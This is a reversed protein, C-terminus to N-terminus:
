WEEDEEDETEDGYFFGQDDCEEPKNNGWTWRSNETLNPSIYPKDSFWLDIGLGRDNEVDGTLGELNNMEAVLQYFDKGGFIGYGEYDKEHWKNGKNDTMTVPFTSRTSYNNAISRNTDQTIWSFFGM